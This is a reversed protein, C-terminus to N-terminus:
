RNDGTYGYKDRLGKQQATHEIGQQDEDNHTKGQPLTLEGGCQDLYRKQHYGDHHDIHPIGDLPSYGPAYCCLAPM